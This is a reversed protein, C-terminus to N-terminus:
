AYAAFSKVVKRKLPFNMMYGSTTLHKLPGMQLENKTRQIKDKAGGSRSRVILRQLHTDKAENNKQIKEDQSFAGNEWVGGM